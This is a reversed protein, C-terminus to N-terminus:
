IHGRDSLWLVVAAAAGPPMIWRLLGFMRARWRDAAKGSGTDTAAILELRRLRDYIGAVGDTSFRAQDRLDDIQRQIGDFRETVLTEVRALRDFIDRHDPNKATM